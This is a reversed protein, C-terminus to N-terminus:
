QGGDRTSWCPDTTSPPDIPGFLLRFMLASLKRVCLDASVNIIAAVGYSNTVTGVDVAVGQRRNTCVFHDKGGELHLILIDELKTTPANNLDPATANDVHVTLEIQVKEKPIMLGFPPNVWLWPKCFKREDLKPIFRYRAVVQHLSV